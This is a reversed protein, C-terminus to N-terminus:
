WARPMVAAEAVIAPRPAQSATRAARRQPGFSSAHIRWIRRGRRSLQSLSLRALTLLLRPLLLEALVVLPLGLQLSLLLGPLDALPLGLDLPLDPEPQVARELEGTALRLRDLDGVGWGRAAAPRFHEFALLPPRPWRSRAAPSAAPGSVEPRRARLAGLLRRRREPEGEPDSSQVSHGRSPLFLPTLLAPLTASRSSHWSRLQSLISYAFSLCFHGSFVYFAFSLCSTSVFCMFLLFAFVWSTQSSRSSFLSMIIM